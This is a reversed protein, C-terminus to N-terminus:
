AQPLSPVVPPHPAPRRSPHTLPLCLCCRRAPGHWAQGLCTPCAAACLWARGWRARRRWRALSAGTACSSPRRTRGTAAQPPPALTAVIRCRQLAHTSGHGLTAEGWRVGWDTQQEARPQQRVAPPGLRVAQQHCQVLEAAAADVLCVIMMLTPSVVWRPLCGRGHCPWACSQGWEGAQGVWGVHQAHLLQHAPHLGHRWLHLLQAQRRPQLHPMSRPHPPSAAEAYSAFLLPLLQLQKPAGPRARGGVGRGCGWLTTPPLILGGWVHMPVQQKHASCLGVQGGAAKQWGRRGVQACARAAQARQAPGARRGPHGRGRAVRGAARLPLLSALTETGRLSWAGPECAVHVAYGGLCCVCAPTCPPGAAGRSALRGGTDISM